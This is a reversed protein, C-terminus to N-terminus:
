EKSIYVLSPPFYKIHLRSIKIIEYIYEVYLTFELLNQRIM